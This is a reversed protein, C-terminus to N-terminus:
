VKGTEVILWFKVAKENRLVVNRQSTWDLNLVMGDIDNETEAEKVIIAFIKPQGDFEGEKLKETMSGKAVESVIGQITSAFDIRRCIGEVHVIQGNNRKILINYGQGHQSVGEDETTIDIYESNKRESQTFM